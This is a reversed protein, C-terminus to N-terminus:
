VREKVTITMGVALKEYVDAPVFMSRGEVVDAHTKAENVSIAWGFIVLYWLKGKTGGKKLYSITENM